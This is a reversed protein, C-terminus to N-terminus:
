AVKHDQTDRVALTDKHDQTDRVEMMAVVELTDM